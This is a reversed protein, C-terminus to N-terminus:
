EGAPKGAGPADAKREGPVCIDPWRDNGSHFTLRVAEEAPRGIRWLFVEYDYRDHEHGRATACWVLWKGDASVM